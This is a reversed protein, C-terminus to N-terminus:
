PEFHLQFYLQDRKGDNSGGAMTRDVDIWILRPIQWLLVTGANCLSLKPILSVLCKRAVFLLCHNFYPSLIRVGCRSM